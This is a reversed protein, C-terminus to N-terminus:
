IKIFRQSFNFTPASHTLVGISLIDAGSRAYAVINKETIGGSIELIIKKRWGKKQFLRCTKQIKEPSFNDLLIVPPSSLNPLKLLAQAAPVAENVSEVEIEIFSSKQAARSQSIRKLAEEAPKPAGAQRLAALHNDKVLIAQWLGLRHTLGGGVSVAKKDLWGWLTKRTAAVRAGKGVRKIKDNFRHTLTAIGSMRGLLDLGVRELELIKKVPGIFELVGQGKKISTGDPRTASVKIKHSKLFVVLEELGALIGSQNAYIQAKVTFNQGSFLTETTLDRKQRDQEHLVTLFSIVWHRYAPNKLTLLRSQQLKNKFM